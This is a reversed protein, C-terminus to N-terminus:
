APSLLFVNILGGMYRGAFFLATLAAFVALLMIDLKTIRLLRLKTRGEGGRYCRAEMANALEDARRFASVFLPIIIPIFSKARELLKGENFDAGRSAQARMIKDAEEILTPIFRLAITMMMALEHVPARFRKLPKLISEVGDTLMIPTTTFIMLLSGGFIIMTVRSAMKLATILGERTPAVIWLRFFPEGPTMFINIVSAFIILPLVPRASRLLVSAPIRSAALSCLVIAALALFEFLGNAAFALAMFVLALTIKVRPDARHLPSDGPFYQGLTINRNM